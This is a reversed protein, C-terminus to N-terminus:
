QGEGGQDEVETDAHVLMATAFEKRRFFQRIEQWLEPENRGIEMLRDSFQIDGQARLETMFETSLLEALYVTGIDSFKERYFAILRALEETDLPTGDDKAFASRWDVCNLFEEHIDIREGKRVRDLLTDVRSRVVPLEHPTEPLPQGASARHTAASFNDDGMRARNGEVMMQGRWPEARYRNVDLAGHAGVRACSRVVRRSGISREPVM